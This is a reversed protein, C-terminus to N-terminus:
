VTLVVKGTVEGSSLLEHAETAREIPLRAGIVPRVRGDAIRPWVEATVAAVIPGKGHPGTVPRGRLATGIVRARKGILKGLNLEGT